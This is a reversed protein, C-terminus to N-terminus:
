DSRGKFREDAKIWQRIQIDTLNSM